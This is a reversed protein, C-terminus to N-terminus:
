GGMRNFFETNEAILWAFVPKKELEVPEYFKLVADFQTNLDYRVDDSSLKWTDSNGANLDFSINVYGLAQRFKAVHLDMTAAPARDTQFGLVSGKLTSVAREGDKDTVGKEARIQISRELAVSRASNKDKTEIRVRLERWEEV